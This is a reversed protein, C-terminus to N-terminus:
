LYKLYFIRNRVTYFCDHRYEHVSMIKRTNCRLIYRLRMLCVQVNLVFIPAPAQRVPKIFDAPNGEAKDFCRVLSGNLSHMVMGMSKYRMLNHFHVVPHDFSKQSPDFFAIHTIQRSGKMWINKKKATVKTKKRIEQYLITNAEAMTPPVVSEALYFHGLGCLLASFYPYELALTLAM